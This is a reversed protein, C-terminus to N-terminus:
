GSAGSASGATSCGTPPCVGVRPNWIGYKSNVRVDARRFQRALFANLADDSGVGLASAHARLDLVLDRYSAPYQDLQSGIATKAQARDSATVKVGRQDAVDSM